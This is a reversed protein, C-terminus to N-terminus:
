RLKRKPKGQSLRVREYKDFECLCNQYDIAELRNTLSSPLKEICTNIVRELSEQFRDHNIPAKPNKDLLRNMGRKSGPGMPAWYKKDRWKGKVAWRMDAVIQGALFDSIGWFECLGVVSNEMSNTDVEYGSELIPIIVNRVVMTEKPVGDIGRIMYASNFVKQGKRKLIRVKNEVEDPQWQKPFGIESLTSPFNFHRALTCAILMHPHNYNPQYWNKLLWQSVADDMRRVNCFRYTQLIKDETWPRPLGKKRRLRIAEREKIWYLLRSLLSMFELKEL